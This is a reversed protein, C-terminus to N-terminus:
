GAPEIKGGRHKPSPLIDAQDTSASQAKLDQAVILRPYVYFITTAFLIIASSRGLSSRCYTM